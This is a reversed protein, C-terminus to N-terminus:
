MRIEGLRVSKVEVSSTFQEQYSETQLPKTQQLTKIYHIRMVYGTWTFNKYEM